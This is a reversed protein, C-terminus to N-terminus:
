YLLLYFLRRIAKDNSGSYQYGLQWKTLDKCSIQLSSVLPHFRLHGKQNYPNVNIGYPYTVVYLVFDPIFNSVLEWVEITWGGSPTM